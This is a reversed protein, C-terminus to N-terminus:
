KNNSIIIYAMVGDDINKLGYDFQHAKLIESVLYLGVGSGKSSLRNDGEQEVRYFPMWLHHIHNDSLRAGHNIIEIHTQANRNYANFLITEGTKTYKIANTMFNSMVRDMLKLDAKIMLNKEVNVVINFHYQKIMPKFSEITRQVLDSVDILSKDLKTESSDLRYIQLLDQIMISSKNVETLINKLEEDLQEKDIVGDMLAQITVQIIMLPTKLEHSITSVLRKKLDVEESQAKYLELLENNKRNLTNLTSNLNSAILNISKSLSTAEKNRFESSQVEFNLNAIEEAVKEIKKIPKSAVNAIRFSWLLVVVLATLYVYNQYTELINIINNTNQIPVITLVYDWEIRNVYVMLDIPGESSQYRWGSEYVNNDLFENSLRNAEIQVRQHQGFIYNLHNPKNIAEITADIEICQYNCSQDIVTLNNRVLKSLVYYDTNDLPTLTAQISDLPQFRINDTLLIDYPIRTESDRATITYQNPTSEIIRFNPGLIVSTANNNSTFNYIIEYYDEEDTEELRDIYRTLNTEFSEIERETFYGPFFLVNLTFQLIFFTAFVFMIVIIIQTTLSRQYYLNKLKKFM